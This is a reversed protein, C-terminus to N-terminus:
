RPCISRRTLNNGLWIPMDLQHNSLFQLSSLWGIYSGKVLNLLKSFLNTDQVRNQILLQPEKLLHARHPMERFMGSALCGLLPNIQNPSLDFSHLLIDTSKISQSLFSRHQHIIVVLEETQKTSVLAELESRHNFDSFLGVAFGNDNESNDRNNEQREWEHSRIKTHVTDVDSVSGKVLTQKPYDGNGTCPTQDEEQPDDDFESPPNPSEPQTQQFFEDRSIRFM